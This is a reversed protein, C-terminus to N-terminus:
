AHRGGERYIVKGDLLVLVSGDPGLNAQVSRDNHLLMRYTYSKIYRNSTWWFRRPAKPTDELSQSRVPQVYHRVRRRGNYGKVEYEQETGFRDITEPTEMGYDVATYAM